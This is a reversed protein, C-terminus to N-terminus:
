FNTGDILHLAHDFHTNLINIDSSFNLLDTYKKDLFPNIVFSTESCSSSSSSNNSFVNDYNNISLSDAVASSSSSPMYFNHHSTRDSTIM